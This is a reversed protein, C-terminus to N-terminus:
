SAGDCATMVLESEAMIDVDMGEREQEERLLLRDTLVISSLSHFALTQLSM